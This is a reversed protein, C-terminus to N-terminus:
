LDNGENKKEEKKNRKNMIFEATYGTVLMTTVTSLLVIVIFAPLFSSIEKLSSMLGVSPSIFFVPMIKIMLDATKKIKDLPIIKTMLCVLMIVLSYISAPIPLNIYYNLIEGIFSIVIIIFFQKLYEM